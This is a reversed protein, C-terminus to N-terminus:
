IIKHESKTFGFMYYFLIHIHLLIAKGEIKNVLQSIVECDTLNINQRLKELNGFFVEWSVPYATSLPFKYDMINFLSIAKLAAGPPHPAIGWPM